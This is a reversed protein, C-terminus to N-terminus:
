IERVIGEGGRYKGQGGSAPKDRNRSGATQTARSLSSDSRNRLSYRSVRLPYSYELAEAPTNLSNTMHTHVGSIGPKTPRAGMGGAITEYYAFPEGNRPNVGGITLNNMTGSAAAPIREPVAQALARLLVDVIRQSTEVNGGAVAAPPRANVVSGTPAIVRIPRMLGSTAPVDEELLCRFVYFCASYTIAEVANISGEVQPDSGAFDVTVMPSRAVRGGQGDVKIAVVITVPRDAIGDSDIFDEARYTGPPVSALFARMMRESYDLLARTASQARQLGYRGSVEGLREAGTHCAAIQAGLDGEREHPTRVNSLLLALVDPEIAGSRMIRVPPVRLGEQYIERCLGMSGPYTGGVDAHHARSAVYFDPSGGRKRARLGRGTPGPDEGATALADQGRQKPGIYVPAVLTIDPLHTGGRFPDNLMIVDGPGPEFDDIAARVSMPMSGLHVPMHDGMAIVEGGSDFIACSYDRREKINPSFATRRLAAGMEEAISHYINKFIEVEVPDRRKVPSMTTSCASCRKLPRRGTYALM